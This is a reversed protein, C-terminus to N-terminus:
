GYLLAERNVAVQFYTHFLTADQLLKTIVHMFSSAVLTETCSEINCRTELTTADLKMRQNCGHQQMYILLFLAHFMRHLLLHFLSIQTICFKLVRFWFQLM